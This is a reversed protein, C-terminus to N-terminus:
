LRAKNKFEKAESYRPYHRSIIPLKLLKGHHVHEFLTNSPGISKQFYCCNVKPIISPLIRLKLLQPQGMPVLTHKSNMYLGYILKKVEATNSLQIERHIYQNQSHYDM